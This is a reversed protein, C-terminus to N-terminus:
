LSQRKNSKKAATNAMAMNFDFSSLIGFCFINIGMVNVLSQSFSYGVKGPQDVQTHEYPFSEGWRLRIVEFFTLDWRPPRGWKKCSCM